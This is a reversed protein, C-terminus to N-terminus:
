RRGDDEEGGGADGALSVVAVVEVDGFLVDGFDGLSDGVTGALDFVQFFAGFVLDVGGFEAGQATYRFKM